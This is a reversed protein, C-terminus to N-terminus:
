WNFSCFYPEELLNYSGDRFVPVDPSYIMYDSYTGDKTMLDYCYMPSKSICSYLGSCRCINEEQGIAGSLFNGGPKKASAFNLVCVDEKSFQRAARLTEMDLIHFKTKLQKDVFVSNPFVMGPALSFTEEQSNKIALSVNVSEGKSNKYWGDNCISITEEAINVLNKEILNIM